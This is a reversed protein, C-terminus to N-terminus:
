SNADRIYQILLKTFEAKIFTQTNCGVSKVWTADEGILFVDFYIIHEKAAISVRCVKKRIKGSLDGVSDAISFAKILSKSQEVSFRYEANGIMAVVSGRM